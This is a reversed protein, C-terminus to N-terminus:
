NILPTQTVFYRGEYRDKIICSRFTTFGDNEIKLDKNDVFFCLRKRAEWMAGTANAENIIVAKACEEETITEHLFM